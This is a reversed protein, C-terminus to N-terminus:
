LSGWAPFLSSYGCSQLSSEAWRRDANQLVFEGFAVAAQVDLEDVHADREAIEIAIEENTKDLQEQYTDRDIEGAIGCGPLRSRRSTM